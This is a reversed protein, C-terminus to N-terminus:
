PIARDCLGNSHQSSRTSVAGSPGQCVGGIRPALAIRRAPSCRIPASFGRRARAQMLDYGSLTPLVLDLIVLDPLDECLTRYGAEAAAMLVQHSEFELSDKLGCLIASDDEVILIRSM